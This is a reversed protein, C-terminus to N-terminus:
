EPEEGRWPFPMGITSRAKLGFLAFKVNDDDDDEGKKKNPPQCFYLHLPPNWGSSAKQLDFSSKDEM